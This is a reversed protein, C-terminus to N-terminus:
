LDRVCRISLGSKDYNASRPATTNAGYAALFYHRSADYITNSWLQTVVGISVFNGDGAQRTGSGRLGFGYTDVGGVNQIGWFEVGLTKLKGGPDAGLYTVLNDFDVKTPVRWGLERVANPSSRSFYAVGKNVAYWNYLRGYFEINLPDNNYWCVAGNVDAMWDAALQKDIIETGDEYILTRLNSSIWEQGNIIVTEYENGTYDFVNKNLKKSVDECGFGFIELGSNFM